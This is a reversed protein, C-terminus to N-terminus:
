APDPLTIDFATLSFTNGATVTQGEALARHAIIEGIGDTIAVWTAEGTGTVSGDSVADVTIKRGSVDGDAPGTFSPTANGLTTTGVSAYDTPEASLIHLETGNTSIYNLAADFANHSIFSM